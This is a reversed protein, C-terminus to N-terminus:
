LGACGRVSITYATNNEGSVSTNILFPLEGTPSVFWRSYVLNSTVDGSSSFVTAQAGTNYRFNIEADYRADNEPIFSVEFYSLNSNPPVSFDTHINGPGFFGVKIQKRIQTAGSTVEQLNVCNTGQASQAIAPAPLLAGLSGALALGVLYSTKV